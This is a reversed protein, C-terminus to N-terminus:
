DNPLEEDPISVYILKGHISTLYLWCDLKQSWKKRVFDGGGSDISKHLSELWSNESKRRSAADRRSAHIGEESEKM